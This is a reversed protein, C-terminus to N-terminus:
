NRGTCYEGRELDTNQCVPCELAKGNEDVKIEEPYIVTNVSWVYHYKDIKNSGCFPCFLANELSFDTQCQTCEKRHRVHYLFDYFQDTFFYIEDTCSAYMFTKVSNIQRLAVSSAKHGLSCIKQIAELSDLGLLELLIPPRLLEAAFTNAEAELPDTELHSRYKTESEKLHNLIIHGLEHALTFRVRHSYKPADDYTIFYRYSDGVRTVCADCKKQRLEAVHSSSAESFPILIVEYKALIEQIDVPLRKIEFIDHVMRAKERAKDYDPSKIM